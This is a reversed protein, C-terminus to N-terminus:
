IRFSSAAYIQGKHRIWVHMSQAATDRFRWSPDPLTGRGALARLVPRPHLCLQITCRCRLYAAEEKYLCRDNADTQRCGCAAIGERGNRGRMSRRARWGPLLTSQRRAGVAQVETQKCGEAASTTMAPSMDPSVSPRMDRSETSRSTSLRLPVSVSFRCACRMMGTTLFWCRSSTVSSSHLAAAISTPACSAPQMQRRDCM